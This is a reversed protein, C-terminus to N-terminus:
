SIPQFTIMSYAPRGKRMVAGIPEVDYRGARPCNALEGDYVLASGGGGDLNLPARAGLGIFIQALEDLRIGADPNAEDHFGHMSQSSQGDVAVAWIRKDDYGVATRQTRDGTWDDDLEGQWTEPIGEYASGSGVLSVGDAVLAPGATLLYGGRRPLGGVPGIRLDSGNAYIAGRRGAWHKGFPETAVRRGPIRVTGLPKGSRRCFFGGVVAHPIGVHRCYDVVREPARMADVRVVTRDRPFAAVHITTRLGGTLTIPATALSPEIGSRGITESVLKRITETM